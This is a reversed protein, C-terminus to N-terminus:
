AGLFISALDIQKVGLATPTYAGETVLYAFLSTGTLTMQKLIADTEVFLTSGEDVPTGLAIKGLFVSRDGSPLDWAANDGLASPPTASYCALFFSSMGSPVSTVNVMLRASTVLIKGGGSPAMNTFELAATSGTAAGIVDRAAYASTDNPRTVSVSRSYGVGVANGAPDAVVMGPYVWGPVQAEPGGAM